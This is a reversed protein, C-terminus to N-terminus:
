HVNVLGENVQFLLHKKLLGSKTVSINYQMPESMSQVEEIVIINWAKFRSSYFDTQVELPLASFSIQRSTQQWEGEPSFNTQMNSNNLVFVVEYGNRNNKWTINSAHPYRFRFESVMDAPANKNQALLLHAHGTFLFIILLLKMNLRNERWLM